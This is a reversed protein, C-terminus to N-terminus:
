PAYRLLFAREPDPEPGPDPQERMPVSVVMDEYAVPEPLTRYDPTPDQTTM